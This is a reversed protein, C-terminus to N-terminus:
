NYQVIRCEVQLEIPLNAQEEFLTITNHEALWCQPLHYWRQTPENAAALSLGDEHQRHWGEDAGYGQATLLWYRGLAHGNVWLQGKGAALADIRFDADAALLEPTLTFAGHYWTCPAANPPLAEQMAAPHRVIERREGVLLPYMEWCRLPQGDFLVPGWIGKRETQMSGSIQWDGKVLGLAVALIDLRHAGASARFHFRHRFGDLVLLELDNALSPPDIDPATAGRNERFPPQSQAVLHGDLYIYFFDGGRTLKLSQEGEAAVTIGTSYWCYDSCDHTLSLQEVPMEARIADDRQAPFPERFCRWAGPIAAVDWGPMIFTSTVAVYDRETDFLVRGDAALLRGQQDDLELALTEGGHTWTVRTGHALTEHTREGALLIDQREALLRHLCALYAGKITLRGYEDMPAGFDYRTTQLYMGNRAFNTGGHWMYYNWGAGGQGLFSLLHRAINRPDRLHRQFGWTDYWAPWLETWILPLDPHQSRFDAAREASIAHGNVTEIVGPAAGECMIIPVDLGLERGLDAMWGLYRAGGDGYRKAVNVYENELQALVVPGGHTILYPVVEACLHRFYQRVRRQYPENETRIVIGPEDRLWSPYGGYNWEACCYPGMRLLVHLKREACLSLFYGLDRDESFDYCDREAEHWNWFIYSAISNLGGAVCRDLLAPWLARPSRAYHVEGMIFLTREGHILFSRQDYTVPSAQATTPM